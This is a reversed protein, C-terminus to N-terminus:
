LEYAPNTSRVSNWLRFHCVFLTARAKSMALSLDFGESSSSANQFQRWDRRCSFQRHILFDWLRDSRADEFQVLNFNPFWSRCFSFDSESQQTPVWHFVSALEEFHLLSFDHSETPFRDLRMWFSFIFYSGIDRSSVSKVEIFKRGEICRVGM